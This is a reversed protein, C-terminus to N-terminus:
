PRLNSRSFPGLEESIEPSIAPKTSNRSPKHTREDPHLLKPLRCCPIPKICAHYQSTINSVHDDKVIVYPRAQQAVWLAWAERVGAEMLRSGGTFGFRHLLDSFARRKCTSNHSHLVATEMVGVQRWVGVGCRNELLILKIQSLLYDCVMQM